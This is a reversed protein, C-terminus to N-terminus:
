RPTRFLLHRALERLGNILQALVLYIGACVLFAEMYRFTDSGTQFMWHSLDNVSIV